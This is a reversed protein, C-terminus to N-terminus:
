RGKKRMEKEQVERSGELILEKRDSSSVMEQPASRSTVFEEWTGEELFSKM